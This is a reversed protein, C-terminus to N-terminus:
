LTPQGIQEKAKRSAKSKKSRARKADELITPDERLAQNVQQRIHGKEKWDEPALTPFIYYCKETLHFYGCAQCTRKTSNALNSYKRKPTSKEDRKPKEPEEESEDGQGAFTPGFAGKVVRSRSGQALQSGSRLTERMDLVVESFELTGARIKERQTVAYIQFWDALISCSLAAKLENFWEYSSQTAGIKKDTGLTMAKEWDSIWTSLDTRKTPPKIAKKYREVAIEMSTASSGGVSKKLNSYWTSIPERPKFHVKKLHNSVTKEMWEKLKLIGDSQTRYERSDLEYIKMADMFSKQNSENLDAFSTPESNPNGRTGTTTRGYSFITPKEPESLPTKEGDLIELLNAAAARRELAENWDEWDEPNVLHDTNETTTASM